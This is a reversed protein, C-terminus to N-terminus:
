HSVRPKQRLQKAWLETQKRPSLQRAKVRLGQRIRALGLSQTRNLVEVEQSPHTQLSLIGLAMISGNIQIELMKQHSPGGSSQGAQWIPYGEMSNSVWVTGPCPMGLVSCRILRSGM